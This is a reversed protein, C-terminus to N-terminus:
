WSARYIFDVLDDNNLIRELMDVTNKLENVYCEDYETSGFHFGSKTSLKQEAEEPHEIVYKCLELLEELNERKVPMDQCVDFGGGCTNVFFKHIQNAKSWSAIMIRNSFDATKYGHLSLIKEKAYLSMDLGM